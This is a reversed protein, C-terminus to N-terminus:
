THKTKRKFSLESIVASGIILVAGTIGYLSIGEALIVASIFLASVPDLYSMIAISQASLSPISAFYMAYAIGTHVIGLIIILVIATPSLKVSILNETLLLYPILVVSASFLQIVTKKYADDIPIKKNLIVVVAYLVASALGFAVGKAYASNQSESEFVGSVLIMGIVSTIVCIGKKFGLHEKFLIPSLLVVITPQMYYCLTATAITTYNYAEFLFIWNLGILGGSLILLLLVKFSIKQSLKKRKLKVFIFLAASGLLGRMFALLTSSVPIYRRFVGITGFILMSGLFMLYSKIQSEKMVIVATFTEM